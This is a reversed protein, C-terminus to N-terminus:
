KGCVPNSLVSSIKLLAFGRWLRQLATGCVHAIAFAVSLKFWLADYGLVKLRLIEDIPALSIAFIALLLLLFFGLRIIQMPRKKQLPPRPSAAIANNQTTALPIALTSCLASVALACLAIIWGYHTDALYASRMLWPALLITFLLPLVMVWHLLINRMFTAVLALSDASLGWVPALFNSYARLRKVPGAEYGGNAALGNLVARTSSSRTFWATLWAAIYGGGSVASLYHFRDLRGLRALGQVVGLGFTASRIGGGSLCLATLEDTASCPIEKLEEILMDDVSLASNKVKRSSNQKAQNM